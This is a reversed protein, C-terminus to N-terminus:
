VRSKRWGAQRAESESCFWREGRLPNIRTASYYKQGPLHYIREGSNSVNGKINCGIGLLGVLSQGTSTTKSPNDESGNPHAARWEWPEDFTGQWIGRGADKAKAQQGAYRGDSYRPWDM